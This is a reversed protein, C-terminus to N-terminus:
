CQGVSTCPGGQIMFSGGLTPTSGNDRSCNKGTQGDGVTSTAQHGTSCDWYTM